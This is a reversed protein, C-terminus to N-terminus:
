QLYKLKGVNAKVATYKVVMQLVSSPLAQVAESGLTLDLESFHVTMCYEEPEKTLDGNLWWLFRLFDLGAQKVEVQHRCLFINHFKDVM